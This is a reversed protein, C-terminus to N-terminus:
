LDLLPVEPKWIRVVVNTRKAIAVVEKRFNNLDLKEPFQQIRSSLRERLVTIEGEMAKLSDKKPILVNKEQELGTVENRLTEITQIMSQWVLIHMSLLFVLVAVGLLGLRNKNSLTKWHFKM